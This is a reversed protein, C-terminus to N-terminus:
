SKSSPQHRRQPLPLPLKRQRSTSRAPGKKVPPRASPVDPGPLRNEMACFRKTSGTIKQLGGLGRGPQCQPMESLWQFQRREVGTQCPTAHPRRLLILRRGQASHGCGLRSPCLDSAVKEISSLRRTRPHPMWPPGDPTLVVSTAVHRAWLARETEFRGNLGIFSRTLIRRYCFVCPTEGEAKPKGFTPTWAAMTKCQCAGPWWSNGRGM